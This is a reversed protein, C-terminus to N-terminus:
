VKIKMATDVEGAESFGKARLLCSDCEKCPQYYVSDNETNKMKQPDYCSWTYELPVRLNKAYLVIEKKSMKILPTHITIPKGQTGIKTGLTATSQFSSIFEGRCDPYGSYDLMNVGIFIDAAGKSEAYATALSLFVLNRAPVYTVPVNDDTQLDVGGKPVDINDTLASNGFARLDLPISKFEQVNALAAIKESAKLEVKHRQGYDIALAFLTYGKKCADYLVTSSDLGGSLLVVAKSSPM